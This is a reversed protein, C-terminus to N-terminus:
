AARASSLGTSKSPKRAPPIAAPPCSVVVVSTSFKGPKGSPMRPGSSHSRNRAWDARNPVTIWVSVTLL